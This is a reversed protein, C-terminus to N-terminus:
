VPVTSHWIFDTRAQPKTHLALELLVSAAALAEDKLEELTHADVILGDLAPSQAVYVNADLDQTINVHLRVPVGWKAALKWGPLGVRYM